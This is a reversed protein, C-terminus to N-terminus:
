GYRPTASTHTSVSSMPRLYVVSYFFIYTYTPSFNLYNRQLKTLEYGWFLTKTAPYSCHMCLLKVRRCSFSRPVPWAKTMMSHTSSGIAYLMESICFQLPVLSLIEQKNFVSKIFPSGAQLSSKLTTAVLKFFFSNICCIISRFESIFFLPLFPM